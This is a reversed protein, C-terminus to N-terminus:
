EDPPTDRYQKLKDMVDCLRTKFKELQVIAVDLEQPNLKKSLEYINTSIENLQHGRIISCEMDGDLEPTYERIEVVTKDSLGIRYWESTDEIERNQNLDVIVPFQVEIEKCERVIHFFMEKKIVPKM